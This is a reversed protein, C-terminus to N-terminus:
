TIDKPAYVSDRSLDNEVHIYTSHFLLNLYSYEIKRVDFCTRFEILHTSYAVHSAVRWFLV